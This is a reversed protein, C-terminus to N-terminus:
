CATRVKEGIQGSSEWQRQRADERQVDLSPTLIMPEGCLQRDWVAARSAPLGLAADSAPGDGSPETDLLCIRQKQLVAEEQELVEPELAASPQLGCGPLHALRPEERLAESPLQEPQRM